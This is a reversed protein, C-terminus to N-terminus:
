DDIADGVALDLLSPLLPILRDHKLLKAECLPRGSLNVGSPRDYRSPRSARSVLGAVLFSHGGIDSRDTPRSACLTRPLQADPDIRRNPKLCIKREVRHPDSEGVRLRAGPM